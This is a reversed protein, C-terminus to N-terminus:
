DCRGFGARWACDRGPRGALYVANPQRQGGNCARPLLAPLCHGNGHARLLRHGDM